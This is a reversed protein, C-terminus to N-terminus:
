KLFSVFGTETINHKITELVGSSPCLGFCLYNQTTEV